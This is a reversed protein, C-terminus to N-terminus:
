NFLSLNYYFTAKSEFYLKLPQTSNLSVLIINKGSLESLYERLRVLHKALHQKTSSETNKTTLKKVVFNM